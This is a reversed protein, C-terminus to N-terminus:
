SKGQEAITVATRLSQAAEALAKAQWSNMPYRLSERSLEDAIVDLDRPKDRPSV